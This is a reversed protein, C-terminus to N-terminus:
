ARELGCASAVADRYGLWAKLVEQMSSIVAPYDSPPVHQLLINWAGKRHEGEVRRHAKTLELAQLPLGYHLV